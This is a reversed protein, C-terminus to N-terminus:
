PIAAVANVDKVDPLIRQWELAPLQTCLLEGISLVAFLESGIQTFREVM